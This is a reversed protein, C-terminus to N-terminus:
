PIGRFKINNRRSRDELDAVKLKLRKIEEEMEFHADVLENHAETFDCIKQEVYDVREGIAETEKKSQQIFCKMDQQLAGRLSLILDKLDTDLIPQGSTPFANLKENYLNTITETDQDATKM